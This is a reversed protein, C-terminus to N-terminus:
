IAEGITELEAIVERVKRMRAEHEELAKSIAAPGQTYYDRGNPCTGALARGAEHLAHIALAIQEVLDDRSTGNLHVTPIALRM